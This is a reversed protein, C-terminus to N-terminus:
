RQHLPAKGAIAKTIGGLQLSQEHVLVRFAHKVGVEVLQSGSTQEDTTTETGWDLEMTEFDLFGDDDNTFSSM